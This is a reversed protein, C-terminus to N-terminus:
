IVPDQYWDLNVVDLIWFMNDGTEQKATIVFGKTLLYKEENFDKAKFAWIDGSAESPTPDYSPDSKGFTYKQNDPLKGTAIRQSKKSQVVYEFGSYPKSLKGYGRMASGGYNRWDSKMWSYGIDPNEFRFRGVTQGSDKISPDMIGIIVDDKSGRNGYVVADSGPVIRGIKGTVKDYYKIDSDTSNEIRVAVDKSMARALHKMQIM